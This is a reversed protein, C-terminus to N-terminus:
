RRLLKKVARILFPLMKAGIKMVQEPVAFRQAYGENVYRLSEDFYKNDVAQGTAINTIKRDYLKDVTADSRLPLGRLRMDIM